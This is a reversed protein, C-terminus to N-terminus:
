RRWPVVPRLAIAVGALIEATGLMRAFPRVDVIDYLWSLLPSAAVLPQISEAEYALFKLRRGQDPHRRPLLPRLV